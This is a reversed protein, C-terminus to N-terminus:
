EYVGKYLLSKIENFRKSADEKRWYTGSSIGDVVIAFFSGNLTMMTLHYGRIARDKLIKWCGKNM